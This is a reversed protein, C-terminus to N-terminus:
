PTASAAPASAQAPAPAPATAPRRGPPAHKPYGARDLASHWQGAEFGDIKNTGVLLVPVSLRGTLKQLEAQVEPSTQPDKSGFPIGRDTLLQRAQDCPAGCASTYLTVPFKERAVRAAHSENAEIVNGRFVRQQVNRVSPPPPQDSYVMRGQADRWQYLQAAVSPVSTAAVCVTVFILAAKM